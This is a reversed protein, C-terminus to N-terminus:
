DQVPPSHNALSAVDDECLLALASCPLIGRQHWLRLQATTLIALYTGTSQMQESVVKADEPNSWMGEESWAAEFREPHCTAKLFEARCRGYRHELFSCYYSWMGLDAFHEFKQTARLPCTRAHEVLVISSCRSISIRQIVTCLYLFPCCNDRNACCV